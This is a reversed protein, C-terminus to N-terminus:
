KLYFKENKEKTKESFLSLEYRKMLMVFLYFRSFTSGLKLSQSTSFSNIKNWEDFLQIFVHLTKGIDM